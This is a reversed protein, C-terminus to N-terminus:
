RPAPGERVAIIRALHPDERQFPSLGTRAEHHEVRMGYYGALKAAFAADDIYRRQHSRYVKFRDADELTRFEACLRFGADLTESVTRLLVDEAEVPM